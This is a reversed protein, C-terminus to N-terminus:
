AMPKSKGINPNLQKYINQVYGPVYMPVGPLMKGAGGGGKLFPMVKSLMYRFQPSKIAEYAIAPALSTSAEKPINASSLKGTTTKTEGETPAQSYASSLINYAQDESLEIGLTRGEDIVHEITITEGSKIAQIVENNLTQVEDPIMQYNQMEKERTIEAAKQEAIAKMQGLWDQGLPQPLGVIGAEASAQSWPVKKGRYGQIYNQLAANLNQQRSQEYPGTIPEQGSYEAYTPLRQPQGPYYEQMREPSPLQRVKIAGTQMVPMEQALTTGFKKRQEWLPSIGYSRVNKLYTEKPNAM